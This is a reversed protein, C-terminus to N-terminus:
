GAQVVVGALWEPLAAFQAALDAPRCAVVAAAAGARREAAAQGVKAKAVDFM